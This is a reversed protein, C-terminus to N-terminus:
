RLFKPYHPAQESDCDDETIAYNMDYSSKDFKCHDTFHRLRYKEGYPEKLKLGMLDLTIKMEYKDLYKGINRYKEGRKRNKAWLLYRYHENGYMRKEYLITLLYSIGHKNSAM